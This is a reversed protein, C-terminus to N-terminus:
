VPQGSRPDRAAPRGAPHSVEQEGMQAEVLGRYVGGDIAVLADHTGKEVIRGRDLVVILDANRVTSLRHAIVVRTCQMAALSEQVQTELLADLASTAEDLTLVSPDRVLARALAIRQRQGGSLSAGGDSIVTDYRMPMEDIEPHICARTAAAVIQDLRLDPEGMAINARITAGFLYPNQPVGGIQRRLSRLELNSLDLGDCLVRGETPRHLGVLLSALTSKGSGSSGVIAVFQGPEIVLSVDTLVQPSLPAYRFGVREFELRGRLRPAPQAVARDQEPAAQMVDQIRNVYSALLQLQGATNALNSVPVFFGAALANFALMTGLSLDGGLVLVAGLTLVLVPSSLRLTANLSDVLATLRGRELSVNLVDVFMHNWQDVLHEESGMMKLTEIGTLIEIMTSDARGQLHLNRSMLERQRKRALWVIVWQVLSLGLVLAAMRASLWTMLILYSVVLVGDLMGSLGGASFIERITANSNLRAMLDGTSRRQFFSYPLTILHDVFDMMMRADLLARLRLLLHARIMSALFFFVVLGAMGLGLVLLLHRDSRPVVRDVLAGTLLPVALAFLQLLLSTLLIRPLHGTHALVQRLHGWISTFARGGREFEVGPEFLLVVGTFHRRFEEMSVRRRGAGPDVIDVGDSRVRELVVFHAFGWHLISAPPVAAVKSGDISVGRSRLGYHRAAGVLTKATTGDRGIGLVDRIEAVPTPKGHYGLVMALCAAGCETMTMQQVIPIRRAGRRWGLRRLAARQPGARWRDDSASRAIPEGRESPHSM